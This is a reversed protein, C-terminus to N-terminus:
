KNREKMLFGATVTGASANDGTPTRGTAVGDIVGVVFTLRDEDILGVDIDVVTVVRLTSAVSLVVPKENKRDLLVAWDVESSLQM